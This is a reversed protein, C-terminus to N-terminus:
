SRPSCRIGTHRPTGIERRDTETWVEISRAIQDFPEEVLDLLSPADSGSVVLESGVIEGENLKADM